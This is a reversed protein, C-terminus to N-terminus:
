TILGRRDSRGCHRQCVQGGALAPSGPALVGRFLRLGAVSAGSGAGTGAPGGAM